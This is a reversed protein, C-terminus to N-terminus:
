PRHERLAKIRLFATMAIWSLLCAGTLTAPIAWGTPPRVVVWILVGTLIASSVILRVMIAIQLTNLKGSNEDM